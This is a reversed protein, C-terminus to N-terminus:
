RALEMILPEPDLGDYCFKHVLEDVPYRQGEKWLDILFKGSEPNRFWLVGYTNELHKRLMVEFIWARLYNASYFGDDVDSLYNAESIKIHLAKGLTEAYVPAMNPTDDTTHLKAEYQLKAAYRRLIWLKYFRALRLYDDVHNVGLIETFWRNNKMLNDMLFAYGESVSGDGFRKFAFPLDPSTHAFHEAHGSEHLIAHYDDQGGRPSIVLYVEDPVRLPM